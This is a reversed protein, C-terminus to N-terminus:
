NTRTELEHRLNMQVTSCQCMTHLGFKSTHLLVSKFFTLVHYIHVKVYM